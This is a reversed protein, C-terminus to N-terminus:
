KHPLELLINEMDQVQSNDFLWLYDERTRCKEDGYKEMVDMFNRLFRSLNQRISAPLIDERDAKLSLFENQISIYRQTLVKLERQVVKIGNFADIFKILPSDRLKNIMYDIDISMSLEPHTDILHLIFLKFSVTNFFRYCVSKLDRTTKITLPKTEFYYSSSIQQLYSDQLLDEYSRQEAGPNLLRYKLERFLNSNYLPYIETLIQYHRGRLRSDVSLSTRVLDDISIIPIYRNPFDEKTVYSRLIEHTLEKNEGGKFINQGEWECPLREVCAKVFNWLRIAETEVQEDEYGHKYFVAFEIDSYSHKEFRGVSGFLGVGLDHVHSLCCDTSLRDKVHAILTNALSISRNLSADEINDLAAKETNTLTVGGKFDHIKAIYSRSSIDKSILHTAQDANRKRVTEKERDALCAQIQRIRAAEEKNIYFDFANSSDLLTKETLISDLNLDDQMELYNHFTNFSFCVLQSSANYSNHREFDKRGWLLQREGDEEIYTYLLDADSPIGFDGKKQNHHEVRQKNLDVQMPPEILDAIGWIHLANTRNGSPYYAFCLPMDDDLYAGLAGLKVYVPYPRGAKRSDVKKFPFYNPNSILVLGGVDSYQLRRQSPPLREWGIISELAKRTFYSYENSTASIAINHTFDFVFSKDCLDANFMINTISTIGTIVAYYDEIILLRGSINFKETVDNGVHKKGIYFKYTPKELQGKDTYLTANEHSDELITSGIHKNIIWASITTNDFPDYSYILQVDSALYVVEHHERYLSSQTGAILFDEDLFLNILKRDYLDVTTLETILKPYGREEAYKRIYRILHRQCIAIATEDSEFPEGFVILNKIELYPTYPNKKVMASCCMTRKDLADQHYFGGIVIRDYTERKLNDIVRTIWEVHNPYKKEWIHRKKINEERILELDTITHIKEVRINLSIDHM